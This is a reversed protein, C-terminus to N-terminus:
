DLFYVNKMLYFQTSDQVYLKFFLVKFLLKKFLVAM